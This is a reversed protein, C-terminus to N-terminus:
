IILMLMRSPNCPLFFQLLFVPFLPYHHWDLPLNKKEQINFLNTYKATKYVQKSCYAPSNTNLVHSQAESMKAYTNKHKCTHMHVYMPKNTDTRMQTYVHMLAHMYSHVHMHHTHMCATSSEHMQQKWADAAKMCRNSEHMQQKWAHPIYFYRPLLPLCFYGLNRGAVDLELWLVNKLMVVQVLWWYCFKNVVEM